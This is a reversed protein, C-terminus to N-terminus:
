DSRARNREFADADHDPNHWAIFSAFDDVAEDKMYGAIAGLVEFGNAIQFGLTPDYLEGASVRRVYEEASM